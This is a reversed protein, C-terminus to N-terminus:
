EKKAAYGTRQDRFCQAGADVRDNVTDLADATRTYAVRADTSPTVKPAPEKRLFAECETPLSVALRTDGAKFSALRDACGSLLTM